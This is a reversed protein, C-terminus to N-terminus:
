GEVVIVGTMEPHFSCFFEFVGTEEFTHEFTVGQTLSGSDFVAATSTWTHAVGDHNEVTVTTGVSITEPGSFAFGSIDISAEAGPADTDAPDDGDACAAVLIALLPLAVLMRLGKM